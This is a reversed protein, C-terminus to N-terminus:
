RRGQQQAAASGRAAAYHLQPTSLRSASQSLQQDLQQLSRALKADFRSALSVGAGAPVPHWAALACLAFGGTLVAWVWLPVGTSM